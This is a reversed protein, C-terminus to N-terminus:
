RCADRVWAELMEFSVGGSGPNRYVREPCQNVIEFSYTLRQAKPDISLSVIRGSVKCSTRKQASAVLCDVYKSFLAGYFVVRAPMKDASKAEMDAKLKTLDLPVGTRQAYAKAYDLWTRIDAQSDAGQKAREAEEELRRQRALGQDELLSLDARLSRPISELEAAQGGAAKEFDVGRAKAREKLTERKRAAAEVEKQLRAIEALFARVRDPTTLQDLGDKLEDVAEQLDDLEFILMDTDVGIDHEDKALTEAPTPKDKGPSKRGSVPPKPIAGPKPALDYDLACEAGRGGSVRLRYRGPSLSLDKLRVPTEVPPRGGEVAYRFLAEGTSDDEIIFSRDLIGQGSHCDTGSELRRLRFARAERSATVAFDAAHPLCDRDIWARLSRSATPLSIEASMVFAITCIAGAGGSVSLLYDGAPLILEALKVPTETVTGGKAQDYSFVIEQTAANQVAFRRYAIRAGTECAAGPELQVIKFGGAVKGPPVRIPGLTRRCKADILSVAALGQDAAARAPANSAAFGAALSAIVLLLSSVRRGRKSM